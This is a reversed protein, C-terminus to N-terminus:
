SPEDTARLLAELEGLERLVDDVPTGESLTDDSGLESIWGTSPDFQHRLREEVRQLGKRVQDVSARFESLEQRVLGMEQDRASLAERLAEVFSRREERVAAMVADRHAPVGAGGVDSEFEGVVASDPALAPLRSVAESDEGLAALAEQVDAEPIRVELGQRGPAVFRGPFAGARVSREVSRRSVGLLEAVEKVTYSRPGM